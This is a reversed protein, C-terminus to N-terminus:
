QADAYLRRTENKKKMKEGLVDAVLITVIVLGIIAKQWTASVGMLNLGSSLIRLLLAGLVTGLLGGKGGDFSTGGIIVAAIADFSYDNGAIPSASNGMSALLLGSAAAFFGSCIYVAMRNKVVDIGSLAASQESGGISYINYGFKSKRLIFIMVAVLLITIHVMVYTGFIKGNGIWGFSQNGVPLTAGGAVVLAMGAGVGMTAFTSIWYDFKFCAVMLGNVVGMLMGCALAALVSILIPMGANMCVAAIVGALSMVSGVSLDIQSILIVMTMGISAVILVSSHRAILLMNVMSLFKSPRLISFFLFLLVVGYAIGPINLRRIKQILPYKQFDRM